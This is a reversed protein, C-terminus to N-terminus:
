YDNIELGKRNKNYGKSFKSKVIFISKMTNILDKESEERVELGFSDRKFPFILMLPSGREIVISDKNSHILIQPNIQHYNDTDIIGPLVSFDDNFNYFVPLQYSSYGKPTKVYWPSQPKIVAWVDKKINEPAYDLFQHNHHFELAFAEHPTQCYINENDREIKIDCWMPVMFSSHFLDPLGPCAKINNELFPMKKWWTPTTKSYRRPVVEPIKSLGPINTWFEVNIKNKYPM